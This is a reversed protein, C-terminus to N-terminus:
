RRVEAPRAAAATTSAPWPTDGGGSRAFTQTDVWRVLSSSSPSGSSGAQRAVQDREHEARRSLDSEGLRRHVAALNHWSEVQPRVSVSHVLVRRAETLQGYRALLVGLENAALYNAQDASLAAQHFVMAQPAHLSHPDADHAALATQLKGLRYLTKSSVAQGGAAIALQSQAFAFYQQQAVIPSLSGIEPHSKLVPTRHMAVVDRVSAVAPGNASSSFDRAEEL